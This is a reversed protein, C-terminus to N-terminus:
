LTNLLEASNGCDGFDEGASTEGDLAWGIESRILGNSVL